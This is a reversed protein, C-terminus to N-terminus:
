RGVAAKGTFNRYPLCSSKIRRWCDQTGKSFVGEVLFVLCLVGGPASQSLVHEVMRQNRRHGEAPCYDGGGTRPRRHGPTCERTCPGEWDATFRRATVGRNQRRRAWGDALKDAGRAGGHVVVLENFGRGLAENWAQNLAHDMLGQDTFARSGTVLILAPKDEPAASM